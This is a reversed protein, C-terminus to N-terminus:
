SPFKLKIKQMAEEHSLDLGQEHEKKSKEILQILIPNLEESLVRTKSTAEYIETPEKVINKKKANM